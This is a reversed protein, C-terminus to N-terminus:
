YTAAGRGFRLGRLGSGDLTGPCGEGASSAERLVHTNRRETEATRLYTAEPWSWERAPLRGGCGPTRPVSPTGVSHRSPFILGFPCGRAPQPFVRSKLCPYSSVDAVIRTIRGCSTRM